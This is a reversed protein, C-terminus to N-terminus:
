PLNRGIIDLAANLYGDLYGGVFLATGRAWDDVYEGGDRWRFQVPGNAKGSAPEGCHRALVALADRRLLDIDVDKPRAHKAAADGEHRAEIRLREAAEPDNTLAYRVTM